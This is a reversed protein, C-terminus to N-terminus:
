RQRKYVDLHTYSVPRYGSAGSVKTWTLNIKNTDSTTVKLTSVKKPDTTANLKPSAESYVRKKDKDYYFSRIKYAYTTASKLHTDQRKYVDKKQWKLSKRM